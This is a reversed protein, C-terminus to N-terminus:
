MAGFTTCAYVILCRGDEVKELRTVSGPNTHKVMYLYSPLKRYSDRPKGRLIELPKEKARWAKMYNLDVGYQKRIDCQIDAPTYITKPDDVNSTILGGVFKSTAHRQSFFGQHMEVHTFMTFNRVKFISSNNLSSSKFYWSCQDDVCVLYYKCFQITDYRLQLM